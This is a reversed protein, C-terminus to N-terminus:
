RKAALRRSHRTSGAKCQQEKAKGVSVMGKARTKRLQPKKGAKARKAVPQGSSSAMEAGQKPQAAKPNPNTKTPQFLKTPLLASTLRAKIPSSAAQRALYDQKISRLNFSKPLLHTKSTPLNIDFWVTRKQNDLCRGLKTYCQLWDTFVKVRRDDGGGFGHKRLIELSENMVCWATGFLGLARAQHTTLVYLGQDDQKITALLPELQELNTFPALAILGPTFPHIRLRHLIEARIYNGVGNWYRQDLLLSCIPQKFARSDINQCVHRVVAPLQTLLCPGREPLATFQKDLSWGGFRRPDEYCLCGDHSHFRLHAHKPPPQNKPIWVFNGSMGMRFLIHIKSDRQDMQRCPSSLSKTEPHSMSAQELSLLVEKGRSDTSIRFETKPPEFEPHKKPHTALTSRSISHFPGYQESISTVFEAMWRLEPGEPM